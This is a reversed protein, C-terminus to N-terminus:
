IKRGIALFKETRAARIADRGMDALGALAAEVADGVNGIALAHDRHAGGPPEAIM